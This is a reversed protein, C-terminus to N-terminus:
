EFTIQVPQQADDVVAFIDVDDLRYQGGPGGAVCYGGGARICIPFLAGEVGQGFYKSSNRIRARLPQGNKILHAEKAELAAFEDRMKAHDIRRLKYKVSEASM